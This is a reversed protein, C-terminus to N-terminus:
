RAAEAGVSVARERFHQVPEPHNAHRGGRGANRAFARVGATQPWWNPASHARSLDAQRGPAIVPWTRAIASLSQFKSIEAPCEVAQPWAPSSDQSLLILDRPTSPAATTAACNRFRASRNEQFHRSTVSVLAKDKLMRSLMARLTMPDVPKHLLHYGSARAERLPEPNTDGSILFASIPAGFEGRLESSRRSAPRGTPSSSLRFHDPRAAPRQGALSALAATSRLRRQGCPLGLEPAARGDRGAGAPRRRHRRRAQREICRARGPAPRPQNLAHGTGRVLPVAVTFRSGRGVTSTLEISHDLLRCLRDVIALGLGLGANQDGSRMASGISNASSSRASTRRFESAPTGCKSACSSAGGAAASSWAARAVHLAGRQLRSQAPDARAPHLRQAGLRQESRRAVVIAERAGRRRVDGRDQRASAGGSIRHHEPGARRCRAEFHRATRQVAREHRRRGCRHARRDPPAEDANMRPAAARRVPGLAHLPQRLDHSAAALFRSKALNALELQHTREEVKRELTAYSEQLQAAMSNFQNGLAELEDGTKISIRQSLDGSGIRAAGDRLARIPM